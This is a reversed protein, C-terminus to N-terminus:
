RPGGGGMGGGGAGGGMRGGGGGPMGMPQAQVPQPAADGGGDKQDDNNVSKKRKTGAFSMKGIRYSFNVKFNMNRMTNYGVQTIVPTVTESRIIMASTFFNEAGFGISGKKNKFDKKFSLSYIGFGGRKGQLQIENARYFSFLQAGWGGGLNYNGFIRFNSVMGENKANLLPDPVNNALKLYSFDAGGGIMLRNTLNANINLNLGYADENGINVSRTKVTDGIVERIQNIAGTTNRIFVASSIYFSKIYKSYGIEFNNTYEPALNPNGTSINLPNTANVNPNLFQVSPRQIRKNYSFRWTGSKFTKSMNFSPVIVGYPPITLNQGEKKLFSATIDTHEYRAGAKVSWKNKTTLTYSAYTGWINQNYDFVNTPLTALNVQNYGTPNNGTPNIFSKYDSSANRLIGKGGFEIMQNKLIPTQYDLQFTAEENYALNENKISSMIQSMTANPNMIDNYFDSTRNSRSYMSLISFEKQPTDYTHSYDINLDVNGSLDSSNTNRLSTVLGNRIQSLNDQYSNGNRVGFRSSATISNHKNIDWDFGIQYNGFLNNTRSEATQVNVTEVGQNKTTQTNEFKGTVNYQSRGFGGLSMGWTKNRFNGNLSMNSGRVGVSSDFGLTLGQLTNKKTVINIIGASGEADYKASPSTIVEVTKIMDAPIQKLADAVNSAMISSPKNNILVKINTSGRLSPNGDLDVSLMPVKKLVDTADGGRNTQDREANYVTRDVREEIMARQGEVTVEQLMKTSSQMKIVGLDHDDKKATVDIFVTKSEYGLFSIVIKYSGVAVKTMTFKGVQDAVTGDVPRNTAKNILAVSAFEVPKNDTSDLAYGVIKASGKPAAAVPAAAERRAPAGAGGPVQANVQMACVVLAILAFLKKM